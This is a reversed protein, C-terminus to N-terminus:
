KVKKVSKNYYQDQKEVVRNASIERTSDIEVPTVKYCVSLSFSKESFSQWLQFVEEYPLSYLTVRFEQSTGELDGRLVPVKLIAHDHFIQMVKGLILHEESRDNAFPTILYCLDLSLPFYKLTTHNVNQMAQNKLYPNEEVKFLFISLERESVNGVKNPSELKIKDPSVLSSAINKELLHKLTMGIDQIVTFDSM